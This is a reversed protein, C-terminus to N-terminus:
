VGNTVHRAATLGGTGTECERDIFEWFAAARAGTSPGVPTTSQDYLCRIFGSGATV